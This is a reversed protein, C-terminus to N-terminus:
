FFVTHYNPDLSRTDHPILVRYEGRNVREVIWRALPDVSDEMEDIESLTHFGARDNETQDPCLTGSRYDGLFVLYIQPEGDLNIHSIAIIGKMEADIGTEERIERVASVDPTEGEDVLGSPIGWTGKAKGYTQRVWLYRRDKRVVSGVSVQTRPLTEYTEVGDPYFPQLFTEKYFL